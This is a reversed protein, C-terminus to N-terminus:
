WRFTMGSSARMGSGPASTRAMSMGTGVAQDGQIVLELPRFLKIEVTEDRIRFSEAVEKVGHCTGLWPIIDSVGSIKPLNIWEVNPDLCSIATAVDGLDLANFYTRAVETTSLTPM